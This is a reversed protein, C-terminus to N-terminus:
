RIIKELDTSNYVYTSTGDRFRVGVGDAISRRHDSYTRGLAVIEVVKGKGAGVRVKATDGM